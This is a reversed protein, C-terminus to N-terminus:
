KLLINDNSINVGITSPVWECRSSWLCAYSCSDKGQNFSGPNFAKVISVSWVSALSRQQNAINCIKLMLWRIRLDGKIVRYLLFESVFNSETMCGAKQCKESTYSFYM